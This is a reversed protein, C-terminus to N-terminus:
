EGTKQGILEKDFEKLKSAGLEIPYTPNKFDARKEGDVMVSLYEITALDGKKSARDVEKYEALRDRLEEVATDVDAAKIKKAAVKV